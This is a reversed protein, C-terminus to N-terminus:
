TKISTFLLTFIKM